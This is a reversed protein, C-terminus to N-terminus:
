VDRVGKLSNLLADNIFCNQDPVLGNQNLYATYESGNDKQAWLCKFIMSLEDKNGGYVLPKLKKGNPAKLSSNNVADCLDLLGQMTKPFEGQVYDGNSPVENLKDQNYVIGFPSLWPNLTYRKGNYIGFNGETIVDAVRDDFNKIEALHGQIAWDYWKDTVDAMYIDAIETSSSAFLTTMAENVNSDYNFLVTCGTQREFTAAYDEMWRGYGNESMTIILTEGGHQGNNVGTCGSLILLSVLPIIKIFTKKLM